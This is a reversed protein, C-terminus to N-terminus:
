GRNFVAVIPTGVYIFFIPFQQDAKYILLLDIAISLFDMMSTLNSSPSKKKIQLM